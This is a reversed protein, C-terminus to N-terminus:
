STPESPLVPGEDIPSEASRGDPTWRDDGEAAELEELLRNLQAALDRLEDGSQGSILLLKIAALVRAVGLYDQERLFRNAEKIVRKVRPDDENPWSLATAPNKSSRAHIFRYVGKNM